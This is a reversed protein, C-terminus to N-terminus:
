VGPYSFWSIDGYLLCMQISISLSQSFALWFSPRRLSLFWPFFFCCGKGWVVAHKLIFPITLVHLGGSFNHSQIKPISITIAQSGDTKSTSESRRFLHTLRMWFTRFSGFVPQKSTCLRETGQYFLSCTRRECADYDWKCEPHILTDLQCWKWLFSVSAFFAALRLSRSGWTPPTLPHAFHRPSVYWYAVCGLATLWCSLDNGAGTFM